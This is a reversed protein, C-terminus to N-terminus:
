RLLKENIVLAKSRKLRLGKFDGGGGDGARSQKTQLLIKALELFRETIQPPGAKGCITEAATVMVCVQRHHPHEWRQNVSMSRGMVFLLAGLHARHSRRHHPSHSATPYLVTATMSTLPQTGSPGNNSQPTTKSASVEPCQTKETESVNTLTEKLHNSYAQNPVKM